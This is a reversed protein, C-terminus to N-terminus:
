LSTSKTWYLYFYKSLELKIVANWYSSGIPAQSIDSVMSSAKHIQNFKPKWNLIVFQDCVHVGNFYCSLIVFFFLNVVARLALSDPFPHTSHINWHIELPCLAPLIMLIICWFVPLQCCFARWLPSCHALSSGERISVWLLDLSQILLYQSHFLSTPGYSACNLEQVPSDTVWIGRETGVM